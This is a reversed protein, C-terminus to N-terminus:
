TGNQRECTVFFSSTVKDYDPSILAKLNEDTAKAYPSKERM